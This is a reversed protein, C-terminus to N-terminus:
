EEEDEAEAKSEEASAISARRETDQIRNLVEENTTPKFKDLFDEASRILLPSGAVFALRYAMAPRWNADGSGKVLIEGADALKAPDIVVYDKGDRHYFGGPTPAKAM